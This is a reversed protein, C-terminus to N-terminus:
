PHITLDESGIVNLLRLADDDPTGPTATYFIIWNGAPNVAGSRVRVSDVHVHEAILESLGAREALEMVPILGASSVLNREDFVASEATFTHSAQV